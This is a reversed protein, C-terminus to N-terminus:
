LLPPGLRRESLWDEYVGRRLMSEVLGLLLVVRGSPCRKGEEYARVTDPSCALGTALTARSLEYRRRLRLIFPRATARCLAIPGDKEPPPSPLLPNFLDGDMMPVIDRTARRKLGDGGGGVEDTQRGELAWLLAQKVSAVSEAGSPRCVAKSGFSDPVRGM